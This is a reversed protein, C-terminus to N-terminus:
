VKSALRKCTSTDLAASIWGRVSNVLWLAECEALQEIGIRQESVEGRALLEARFTGALLGCHLPPTLLRDGRKLVVNAVTSETVEGCPNWLLVDDHDPFCRRHRDYVSRLTTKHYLFRDGPDIPERALAVQWPRDAAPLAATELEVSGTEDLLLRVRRPGGSLRDGLRELRRRIAADDLPYDFYEASAALRALHRDLLFVGDGPEWRLTEVLRFGAPQPALVLTKTRCEEWEEEVESDWVIGGGTGYEVRHHRRDVVATRIAVSFRARRGPGILGIAGTYLGRPSSELGAIIEMARVKPAGTISACPFLAAFIEPLSARTRAEVQSTLQFLSPYRELRWLSSVRVSGAAAIRGLDNRVMDVIMLNEALDKQSRLLAAGLRRDEEATRGRAATGKMPRSWIRDGELRFFLEPSASCAVWDGGDIFACCRARQGLCLAGFLAEPDQEFRSGLRLSFNVQYTDGRAILDRITRVAREYDRRTLSNQWDLAGVPRAAAPPNDLRRPRDFIGFWALPTAAPGRRVRFVPDFAPAAEYAVCGAAISGAAAAAEAQALVAPVQSPRTAELIRRAPGLDWWELEGRLPAQLVVRPEGAM